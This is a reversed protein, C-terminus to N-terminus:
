FHVLVTFHSYEARLRLQAPPLPARLVPPLAVEQPGPGHSLAPTGGRPLAGPALVGRRQSYLQHCFLNGKRSLTLIKSRSKWLAAELQWFLEMNCQKNKWSHLVLSGLATLSMQQSRVSWLPSLLQHRTSCPKLSFAESYWTLDLIFIHLYNLSSASSLRGHTEEREGPETKRITRKGEQSAKSPSERQAGQACLFM